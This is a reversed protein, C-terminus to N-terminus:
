PQKDELAALLRDRWIPKYAMEDVWDRVIKLASYMRRNHLYLRENVLTAQQLGVELHRKAEEKFNVEEDGKEKVAESQEATTRRYLRAM